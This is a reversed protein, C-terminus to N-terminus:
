GATRAAVAQALTSFFHSMARSTCPLEPNWPLVTAGDALRTWGENERLADLPTANGRADALIVDPAAGAATAWDTTVWNGGSGPLDAPRLGLETLARLDPWADARAVHVTDAGAPSLATVRVRPAEGAAARLADASAELGAPAPPEAGLSRALEAYRERVSFLSHGAGTGVAVTPLEAALEGATEPDVGYLHEGDYTVSVFLDAGSARVAAADIEAGAGLYPVDRDTLAEAKVPDIGDKDHPSGFIGSVPLGLDQLVAAAQVYAVIRRPRRPATAERGRDDRFAWFSDMTM